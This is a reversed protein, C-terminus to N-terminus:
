RIAGFSIATDRHAKVFHGISAIGCTEEAACAPSAVLMMMGALASLKNM